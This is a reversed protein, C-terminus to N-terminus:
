AFSTKKYSEIYKIKGGCLMCSKRKDIRYLVYILVRQFNLCEVSKSLIREMEQQMKLAEAKRVFDTGSSAIHNEHHIILLGVNANM